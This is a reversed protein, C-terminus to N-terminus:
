SGGRAVAPTALFAGNLCGLTTGRATLPFRHLLNCLFAKRSSLRVGSWCGEAWGTLACMIACYAAFPASPWDLVYFMGGVTIAGLVANYRCAGICASAADTLLGHGHQNWFTLSRKITSQEQPGNLGGDSAAVYGWLGFYIGDPDACNLVCSSPLLAAPHWPLMLVPADGRGDSRQEGVAGAQVRVQM